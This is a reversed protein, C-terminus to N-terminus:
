AVQTNESISGDPNYKSTMGYFKSIRKVLANNVKQPDICDWELGQTMCMNNWISCYTQLAKAQKTFDGLYYDPEVGNLKDFTHNGTKKAVRYKTRNNM